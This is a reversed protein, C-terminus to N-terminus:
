LIHFFVFADHADVEVHTGSLNALVAFISGLAAFPDVDIAVFIILLAPLIVIAFPLLLVWLLFLPIWLRFARGQQNQVQVRILLPPMM